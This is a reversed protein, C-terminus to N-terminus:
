RVSKARMEVTKIQQLQLKVHILLICMFNKRIKNLFISKKSQLSDFFLKQFFSSSKLAYFSNKRLM